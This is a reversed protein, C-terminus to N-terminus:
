YVMQPDPPHKLFARYKKVLELGEDIKNCKLALAILRTPLSKAHEFKLGFNYCVNLAHLCSHYDDASRAQAFIAYLDTVNANQTNQGLPSLRRRFDTVAVDVNSLPREVKKGTPLVTKRAAVKNRDTAIAYTAGRFSRAQQFTALGSASQFAPHSKCNNPLPSRM